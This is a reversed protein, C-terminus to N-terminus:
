GADVQAQIETLVDQAPKTQSSASSRRSRPTRRRGSRTPARTSSRTPCCRSSRRSRRRAASRRPARSRSPCSARPRRGVARLRRRHLLLRLVDHDRGAQRRREPLGHPPGRRRAHVPQRGPHPHARDLVRPRPQGGRDPRRDAAPRGAHRDQGPRLHRVAASRDTSGADAQTAGADIMKKISSPAPCTRRPRRRHDGDADGFTGGGGWLWVAAEAQAEESGLPMGYGAIGGGLASVKTAARAARGLHHAVSSAPRSSCRTTSSCRVPRRSSRCRRLDHRRGRREGPVDGPLRRLDRGLHGGRGPVAARRGRLRRVPRRQLHRTGRRGPGEHRHRDRPQGM